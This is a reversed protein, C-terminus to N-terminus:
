LSSLLREYDEHSGIWFWVVTNDEKVGLARYDLTIRVSYIYPDKLVKKFRLSPHNHDEIFLHYAKRASKRIQTPIRHYCEWFQKTTESRV